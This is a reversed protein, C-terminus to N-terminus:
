LSQEIEREKGLDLPHPATNNGTEVFPRTGVKQGHAVKEQKKRRSPNCSAPAGGQRREIRYSALTVSKEGVEGESRLATRREPDSV